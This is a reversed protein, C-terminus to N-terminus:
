INATQLYVIVTLIFNCFCSHVLFSYFRYSFDCDCIWLYGTDFLVIPLSHEVFYMGAIAKTQAAVVDMTSGSERQELTEGVCAIM